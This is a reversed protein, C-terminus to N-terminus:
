IWIETSHSDQIEPLQPSGEKGAKRLREIYAHVIDAETFKFLTKKDLRLNEGQNAMIVVDQEIVQRTYFRFFPKLLWSFWGVDYQIQTYVRSELDSVPTIQSIICFGNQGFGYDVKTLNPMIFRDTHVMSEGKPNLIKQTFGIHDNPQHYTVLVSSNEMDVSIPVKSRAKSRFWGAHVFVTHPVDMFNEVLNTTNNEFDTIMFYSQTRKNTAKPFRFPPTSTKPEGPGMWVWLCGDQEVLPFTKLCYKRRSQSPGESPVSTVQGQNNYSWGHYPCVLEGDESVQGESLKAHRHLCRDLVAFARGNHDRYVAIAQDFVIRRLCCGKKLEKSLAAVYWNEILKGETHALPSKM